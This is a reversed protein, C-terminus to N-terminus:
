NNSDPMINEGSTRQSDCNQGMGIVDRIEFPASIRLIEFREDSNMNLFECNKGGVTAYWASKLNNEENGWLYYKANPTAVGHILRIPWILKEQIAGVCKKADEGGHNSCIESIRRMYGGNTGLPETSQVIQSFSDLLENLQEHTTEQEDAKQQIQQILAHLCKDYESYAFEQKQYDSWLGALWNADENDQLLPTELGKQIEIEETLRNCADKILKKANEYVEPLKRFPESSFYEGVLKEGYRNLKEFLDDIHERYKKLLEGSFRKDGKIEPLPQRSLGANPTNMMLAGSLEQLKSVPMRLKLFKGLFKEGFEKLLSAREREEKLVSLYYQKAFNDLREDFPANGTTMVSFLPLLDVYDGQRPMKEFRSRLMENLFDIKMASKVDIEGNEKAARDLLLRVRSLLRTAVPSSVSVSQATYFFKGSDADGRVFHEISVCMAPEAFFFSLLLVTNILCGLDVRLNREDSYTIVCARCCAIGISKKIEEMAELWVRASRYEEHLTSKILLFPMLNFVIQSPGLCGSVSFIVKKYVDMDAAGVFAVPCLHITNLDKIGEPKTEATNEIVGRLVETLRASASDPSAADGDVSIFAYHQRYALNKARLRFMEEQNRECGFLLFVVLYRTRLHCDDGFARLEAAKKSIVAIKNEM